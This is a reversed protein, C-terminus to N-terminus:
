AGGRLWEADVGLPGHDFFAGDVDADEPEDSESGAGEPEGDYEGEWVGGIDPEVWCRMRRGEARARAVALEYDLALEAWPWSPVAPDAPQVWTRGTGELELLIGGRVEWLGRYRPHMCTIRGARRIQDDCVGFEAAVSVLGRESVMARLSERWAEPTSGFHAERNEYSWPDEDEFPDEASEVGGWRSAGSTSM